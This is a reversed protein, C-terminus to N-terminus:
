RELKTIYGWERKSVPMISLRSGRQLLRMGGLAKHQKLEKLSIVKNFKRAFKVDVMFWRPEQESSKPDYYKAYPDFATHDPYAGRHISMIGAIGPEACNSHYFFAQDGKRMRDRMFNRAEYNRIGDWHDVQARKLDDISYVDPESKMLWYNM